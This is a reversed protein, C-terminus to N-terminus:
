ACASDSRYLTGASNVCVYDNGTGALNSITINNFNVGGLVADSGIVLDTVNNVSSGIAQPAIVMTRNTVGIYGSGFNSSDNRNTLAIKSNVNNGNPMLQFSAGLNTRVAKFDLRDFTGATGMSLDMVNTNNLRLVGVIDLKQQPNITGLGTNGDTNVILPPITATYPVKLGIYGVDASTSTAVVIIDGHMNNGSTTTSRLRITANGGLLDQEFRGVINSSTSTITLRSSPNTNGVGVNGAIYNQATGDMYLNYRNTGSTVQGRYGIGSGSADITSPNQVDIGYFNTINGASKIPTRVQLGYVNTTRGIGTQRHLVISSYSNTLNGTGSNYMDIFSGRIDPYVRSGAFDVKMSFARAQSSQSFNNTGSLTLTTFLATTDQASEGNASPTITTRFDNAVHGGSLGTYTDISFIAEDNTTNVNLKGLPSITGIGLNNLTWSDGDPRLRVGEVNSADFMRQYIDGQTDEFYTVSGSGAQPTFLIMNSNNVGNLVHFEASPSSTGVGLSAGRVNGIWSQGNRMSLGSVASNSANLMYWIGNGIGEDKFQLGFAGSIGQSYYISGSSNAFYLSGRTRTIGNIDLTSLPSTTGIGVNGSTANITLKYNNADAFTWSNAITGYSLYPNTSASSFYYM